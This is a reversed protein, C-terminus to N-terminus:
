SDRPQQQVPHSGLRRSCRDVDAAALTAVYRGSWAGFRVRPVPGVPRPNPSAPSSPGSAYRSPRLPFTPLTPTPDSPLDFGQVTRPIAIVDFGPSAAFRAELEDLQAGNAPALLDGRRRAM